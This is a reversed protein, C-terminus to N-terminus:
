FSNNIINVWCDIDEPASRYHNKVTAISLGSIRAVEKQTVKLNNDILYDKAAQIKEISENRRYKGNLKNMIENKTEKLLHVQKNLHFKKIKNLNFIYGQEQTLRFVYSFYRQLERYVMPITTHYNNIFQIYAFIYKPDLDPNLYVLKHILIAFVKHKSGDKIKKPFTCKVYEIPNYDVIPNVVDICTSTKVKQIFENYKPLDSFTYILTNNNKKNSICQNIGKIFSENYELIVDISNEYNYFLESDYSIYMARGLDCTKPDINEHKLITKRINDWIAEYQLATSIHNNVKFLISLGQGSSSICILSVQHGIRKVLENKYTIPNSINDIDFYVYGSSSIFNRNFDEIKTISRYKVTCNPTIYNLKKKLLKYEENNQKRKYRICDILSKQDNNKIESVLAELEISNTPICNTIGNEFWSFM